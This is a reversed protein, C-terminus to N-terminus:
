VTPSFNALGNADLSQHSASDPIFRSRVRPSPELAKVERFLRGSVADSIVARRSGAGSRLSPIWYANNAREIQERLRAAHEAASM